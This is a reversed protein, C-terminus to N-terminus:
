PPSTPRMSDCETAFPLLLRKTASHRHWSLDALMTLKQSTELNDGASKGLAYAFTKLVSVRVRDWGDNVLRQYAPGASDCSEREFHRNKYPKGDHTDTRSKRCTELRQNTAFTGYLHCSYSTVELFPVEGGLRHQERGLILFVQAHCTLNEHRLNKWCTRHCVRASRRWSRATGACACDSRLPVM